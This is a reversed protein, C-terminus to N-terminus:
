MKSNLDGSKPRYVVKEKLLRATNVDHSPLVVVERQRAFEKILRLSEFAQMPNDNIGDPEEAELHELGYTADGTILYTTDSADTFVVSIHGPVHGPTQVALVKGDKTIAQSKHWPGISGGDFDLLKPSFDKPWHHPVCGQTAAYWPHKGFAQWHESSVYIPVDPAAESIENVGGAHDHHLHTLVVAQLDKPHIGIKALQPIIGDEPSIELQNVIHILMNLTSFYGAKICDPSAGTDVLIPGDEHRILFVGIPLWDTWEGVFSRLQRSIKPRSAIQGSMSERIKVRGTSIFEISSQTAM